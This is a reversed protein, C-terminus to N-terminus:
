EYWSRLRTWSADFSAAWLRKGASDFIMFDPTRYSTDFSSTAPDARLPALISEVVVRGAEAGAPPAILGLLRGSEDPRPCLLALGAAKWDLGEVVFGRSTFGIPLDRAAKAALLNEGPGGVLLLSYGALAAPTADRDAIVPFRGPSSGFPKQATPSWDALSEALAKLQATRGPRKTGYVILLPSRFLDGFGCGLQPPPAGGAAASPFGEEGDDPPLMEYSGRGDAGVEGELAFRQRSGADCAWSRDEVRVVVRGASALGLAGLDLEFVSVNELSLSLHREDLRELSLASFRAPDVSEILRLGPASGHRPSASRLEIRAPPWPLAQDSLFSFLRDARGSGWTEWTERPDRGAVTESELRAGAGELRALSDRAEEKSLGGDGEGRVFLVPLGVFPAPDDPGPLGSFAAVAAISAPHLRAERLAASAGWGWGVLWIRRQDPAPLGAATAARGAAAIAEELDEEGLGAWGSDGRGYPAIVIAGKAALSAVRSMAELDSERLDHLAILLPPAVPPMGPVSASPPPLALCWSQLSGDLPSCRALRFARGAPLPAEGLALLLGLEDLACLADDLGQFGPGAKGELVDALFALTSRRDYGAKGEVAGGARAPGGSPPPLSSLADRASLAAAAAAAELDGAFAGCMEREKGDDSVRLFVSGEYGSPLALEFGGGRVAATEALLAGERDRASIRPGTAQGAFAGAGAPLGAGALAEESAADAPLGLLPLIGRLRGGRDTVRSLLRLDYAGSGATVPEDESEGALEVELGSQPGAGRGSLSTASHIFHLAFDRRSAPGAVKVLLRNRGGRLEVAVAEEIGYRTSSDYRAYVAEGNLFVKVPTSARVGLWAAGGGETEVERFAYVVADEATGPQESLFVTRGEAHVFRWGPGDLRQIAMPSAGEEGGAGVLWDRDIAETLDAGGAATAQGAAPGAVFPGIALWDDQGIDEGLVAPAPLLPGRLSRPLRDGEALFALLASLGLFVLSAVAM